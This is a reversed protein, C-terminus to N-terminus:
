RFRLPGLAGPRSLGSLNLEPDKFLTMLTCVKPVPVFGCALFTAADRADPRPAIAVWAGRSAIEAVAARLLERAQAASLHGPLFLDIVEAPIRGRGKLPWSFSTCLGQVGAEASGAPVSGAHVLTQATPPSDLQRALDGSDWLQSVRHTQTQADLLLHCAALDSARYPRAGSQQRRVPPRQLRHLAKLGLAEAPHDLQGAMEAPRLFRMWFGVGCLTQYRNPFTRQFASWFRHASATPSANVYGLFFRLGKLRHARELAGILRTAVGRAAYEPHVSFGSGQSGEVTQGDVRLTLREALFCGVLRAGDYAALHLSPDPGGLMQWRLDGESYVPILDRALYREQWCSNIFDALDHATGDYPRVEIM